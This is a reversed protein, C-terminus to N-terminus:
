NWSRFDSTSRCSSEARRCWATIAKSCSTTNFSLYAVRDGPEMALEPLASALKKAASASNPTLSSAFRLRRRSQPGFLDMARHLCRIPTLPVFM